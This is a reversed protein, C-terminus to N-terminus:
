DPEGFFAAADSQVRCDFWLKYKSQPSRAVFIGDQAEVLLPDSSVKVGYQNYQVEEEQQAFAFTAICLASLTILFKKM